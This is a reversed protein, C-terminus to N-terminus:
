LLPPNVLNFYYAIFEFDDEPNDFYEIHDARFEDAEFILRSEFDTLETTLTLTYEREDEQTLNVAISEGGILLNSATLVSFFRGFRQSTYLAKRIAKIDPAPSQTTSAGAIRVTDVRLELKDKWILTCDSISIRGVTLDKVHIGQKLFFCVAALSFGILVCFGISGKIIIRKINRRAPADHNNDM